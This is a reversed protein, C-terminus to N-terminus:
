RKEAHLMLTLLGLAEPEDPLLETVVRGLYLAEESLDRRAVDTGAPDSWAEAYAAYIADLMTALRHPVKANRFM